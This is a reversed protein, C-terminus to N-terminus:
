RAPRYVGGLAAGNSRSSPWGIIYSIPRATLPRVPPGAMRCAQAHLAGTRCVKILPHPPPPPIAELPSKFWLLEPFESLIIRGLDVPSCRAFFFPIQIRMIPCTSTPIVYNKRKRKGRIINKKKKKREKIKTPASECPCNELNALCCRSPLRSVDLLFSARNDAHTHTGVLYLLGLYAILRYIPTTNQRRVRSSKGHVPHTAARVAAESSSATTSPLCRM